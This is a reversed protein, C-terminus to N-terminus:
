IPRSGIQLHSLGLYMVPQARVTMNTTRRHFLAHTPTPTPSVYTLPTIPHCHHPPIQHLLHYPHIQGLVRRSLQWLSRVMLPVRFGLSQLEEVKSPAEELESKTDVLQVQRVAVYPDDLLPVPVRSSQAGNAQTISESDVYAPTSIVLM